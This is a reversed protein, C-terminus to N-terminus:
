FVGENWKIKHGSNKDFILNEDNNALNWASSSGTHWIVSQVNIGDLGFRLMSEHEEAFIRYPTTLTSLSDYSRQATVAFAGDNDRGNNVGAVSKISWFYSTGVSLNSTDACGVTQQVETGEDGFSTDLYAAPLNTIYTKNSHTQYTNGSNYNYFKITMELAENSDIDLNNANNQSFKFYLVSRNMGIDGDADNMFKAKIWYPYWHAGSKTRTNGDGLHPSTGTNTCSTTQGTAANYWSTGSVAHIHHSETANALPMIEMDNQMSCSEVASELDLVFSNKTYEGKLDSNALQINVDEGISEMTQIAEVQLEDLSVEDYVGLKGEELLDGNIFNLEGQLAELIEKYSTGGEVDNYGVTLEQGNVIVKCKIESINESLVAINHKTMESTLAVPEFEYSTVKTKMDDTAALGPNITCCLFLATTAACMKLKRSKKMM